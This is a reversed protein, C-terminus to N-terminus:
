HQFDNSYESEENHPDYHHHSSSDENEQEEVGDYSDEPQKSDSLQHNGLRAQLQDRFGFAKENTTNPLNATNYHSQNVSSPVRFGGLISEENFQHM